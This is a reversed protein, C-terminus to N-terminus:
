MGKVTDFTLAQPCLACFHKNNFNLWNPVDIYIFLSWNNPNFYKNFIILFKLHVFSCIIFFSSLSVGVSTPILFVKKHCNMILITIYMSLDNKNYYNIKYDKRNALNHKYTKMM